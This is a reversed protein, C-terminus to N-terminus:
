PGTAPPVPGLVELPRPAAVFAFAAGSEGLTDLPPFPATPPSAFVVVALQVEPNPPLQSDVSVPAQLPAPQDSTGPGALAASIQWPGSPSVTRVAVGFTATPAFGSPVFPLVLACSGVASTCPVAGSDGLDLDVRGPAGPTEGTPCVTLSESQVCRHQMLATDIAADESIPAEDFGSSGSGCGALFGALMLLIAFRFPARM